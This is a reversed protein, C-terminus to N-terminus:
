IPFNLYLIRFKNLTVLNSSVKNSHRGEFEEVALPSTTCLVYTADVILDNKGFRCKPHPFLAELDQFPGGRVLVRTQGTTPGGEPEISDVSVQFAKKGYRELLKKRLAPDVANQSVDPMSALVDAL